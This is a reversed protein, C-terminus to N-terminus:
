RWPKGTKADIPSCQGPTGQPTDCMWASWSRTAGPKSAKLKMPGHNCVPAPNFADQPAAPTQTLAPFPATPPLAPTPSTLAASAGQATRLLTSIESAKGVLRGFAELLEAAEDEDAAYINHLDGNPTKYNFQLKTDPNTM